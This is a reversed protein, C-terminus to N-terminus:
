VFPSLFSHNLYKTTKDNLTVVFIHTSLLYLSYKTQESHSFINSLFKMDLKRPLSNGKPLTLLSSTLRSSSNQSTEESKPAKRNIRPPPPPPPISKTTKVSTNNSLSYVPTKTSTMILRTMQTETQLRLAEDSYLAEQGLPIYAGLKEVV